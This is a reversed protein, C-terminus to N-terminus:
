FIAPMYFHCISCVMASLINSLHKLQLKDGISDARSIIKDWVDTNYPGRAALKSATFSLNGADMRFVTYIAIILM